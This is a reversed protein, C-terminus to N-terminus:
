PKENGQEAQGAKRKKKEQYMKQDADEILLSLDRIRSSSYIAAGMSVEIQFPNEGSRNREDINQHIDNIMRHAESATDCGSFIVFEDGGYRMLLQDAAAARKMCDALAKILADGFKHGMTDNVHKLGDIDAFIIYVKQNEKRLKELLGDAYHFFGARNYVNTLTDYAWMNNLQHITANLIRIKRINELGIGISLVWAYYLESKMPFLSDVSVCYGYCHNLYHIPSVIYLNGAMEKAKEPIIDERQISDYHVFEGNEYALSVNMKRTYETLYLENVDKSRSYREALGAAEELNCRCLYFSKMDTLQVYKKLAEILDEEQEFATFDSLMKQISNSAQQVIFVQEVYKERVKRYIRKVSQCGCSTGTRLKGVFKKKVKILEARDMTCLLRMAEYGVDTQSRAITTISPSHFRAIDDGDYGTVLVDGPVSYGFERLQDVAGIAMNDNACIIAEPIKGRERLFYKVANRGSDTDYYGRFVRDERYEIGEEALCDQYAKFREIGEQNSLLGTVYAIDRKKHERIVHMITQRQGLYESIYVFGMGEMKENISVAKVGSELIKGAIRNAVEVQQITNKVLIVGDFKSFDPLEMIQYAGQKVLTNEQYTVLNTFVFVNIDKKKAYSIMGDLLKHQNDFTIACMMVAIQKKM